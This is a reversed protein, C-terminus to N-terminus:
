RGFCRREVFGEMNAVWCVEEGNGPGLVDKFCGEGLLDLLVEEELSAAAVLVGGWGDPM